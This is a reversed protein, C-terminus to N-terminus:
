SKESPSTSKRGQPSDNRSGASQPARDIHQLAQLWARCGAETITTGSTNAIDRDDNQYLIQFWAADDSYLQLGAYIGRHPGENIARLWKEFEPWFWAPDSELAPLFDHWDSDPSNFHGTNHVRKGGHHIYFYGNDDEILSWDLAQCLAKRLELGSLETTM